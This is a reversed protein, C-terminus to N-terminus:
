HALDVVGGSGLDVPGGDHHGADYPFGGDFPWALDVSGGGCGGGDDHGGGPGLDVSGGDGAGLKNSESGPLGSVTCGLPLLLLAVM